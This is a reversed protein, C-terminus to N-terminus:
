RPVVEFDSVLLYPYPREREKSYPNRAAWETLKIVTKDELVKAKELAKGVFRTQWSEFELIPKGTEPNTEGTKIGESVRGVFMKDTHKADEGAKFYTVNVTTKSFM